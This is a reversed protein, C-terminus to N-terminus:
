WNARLAMGLSAARSTGLRPFRDDAIAVVGVGLRAELGSGAGMRGGDEAAGGLEVRLSGKAPGIVSAPVVQGDCTCQATCGKPTRDAPGPWPLEFVRLATQGGLVNLQARLTQGKLEYRFFGWGPGLTTLCAFKRPREAPLFTLCQDVASYRQGSLALLVSWSALARAYFHGCEPEDFPNRRLGDHRARIASVIALGEDVMGEYILHAAVQYEIGTWVEDSYPFPFAERHGKPWSCLVLGAEDNLAYTRQVSTHGSLEPKFNHQFVSAMARRVHAEPLVYGLGAVHAAWQGLLQDSLCGVGYQYKPRGAPITRGSLSDVYDQPLEPVEQVYYGGRFLMEDYRQAGRRALEEWRGASTADGVAQAM